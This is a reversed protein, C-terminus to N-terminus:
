DGASSREDHSKNNKLAYLLNGFRRALKGYLHEEVWRNAEASVKSISPDSAKIMSILNELGDAIESASTGPLRFVASSIDDFISLPTVAVPRRTALGYRVAGSASEGTDQYPFLILDAKELLTLSDEDDLFETSLTIQKRLKKREITAKAEEVLMKSSPVPYEANVMNAEVKIGRNRLLEVADIFELLGKHPLFFGYTALKFNKSPKVAVNNSPQHELVGHPFLMTNGEVGLAKLRNLDNISHVVVRACLKLAPVLQSLRKNAGAHLPDQTSHLVIVLIKEDKVQREIFHRLHLFDFFGYNFQIVLTDIKSIDITKSLKELNDPANQNWCRIVDSQDPRVFEEAYPALYTLTYPFNETLHQSYTAIGCKTNWTSIWGIRPKGDHSNRLLDAVGATLKQASDSWKFNEM